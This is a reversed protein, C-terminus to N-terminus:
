LLRLVEPAIGILLLWKLSSDTRYNILEFDDLNKQRDFMKQMSSDDEMSWHWVATETVLALTNTSIWKWFLVDETMTHSKILSKLEINFIQLVRGAKLALLNGSLHMIPSDAKIPYRKIPGKPNAVNVIAVQSTQGVKECICIFRDSEMTLKAFSVNM